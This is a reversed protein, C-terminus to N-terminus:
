IARLLNISLLFLIAVQKVDKMLIWYLGLDKNHCYFEISSIGINRGPQKQPIHDRNSDM